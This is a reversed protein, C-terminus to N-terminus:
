QVNLRWSVTLTGGDPGDGRIQVVQEGKQSRWGGKLPVVLPTNGGVKGDPTTVFKLQRTYVGSMEPATGKPENTDVTEQYTLPGMPIPLMLALTQAKVDFEAASPGGRGGPVPPVDGAGKSQTNRKCRGEPLAMCGPDAHVLRASGEIAYRGRQSVARWAQYRDAGVQATVARGSRQAAEVQGTGAMGFGMKAIEREICKEDDGCRAVVAEAGAMMPAMQNAAQQAQASQRAANANAAAATAADPPQVSPMPLPRAAALEATIEVSSTTRWEHSVRSKDRNPGLKGNSEFRYQVSLTAKAGVPAFDQARPAGVAVAGLLFLLLFDRKM